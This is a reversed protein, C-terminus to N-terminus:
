SVDCVYTRKERHSLMHAQYSKQNPCERACIECLKPSDKKSSHQKVHELLDLHSSYSEQCHTCRYICDRKVVRRHTAEMHTDLDFTSSFEMGCGECMFKPPKPRHTAMHSYLNRKASFQKACINCAIVDVFCSREKMHVSLSCFDKFTAKCKACTFTIPADIYIDKSRNAAKSTSPRSSYPKFDEDSDAGGESDEIAFIDQSSTASEDDFAWEGQQSNDLKREEAEQFGIPDKQFVKKISIGSNRQMKAFVDNVKLPVTRKM